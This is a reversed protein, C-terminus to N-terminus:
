EHNKLERMLREYLHMIMGATMGWIRREAYQFYYVPVSIAGLQRQEFQHNQSNLLFSLPVEFVSEVETSDINLRFAENVFGVVPIVSFGSFVVHTELYGVIEVHERSLGIEEETERLAAAKPELDNAEIRGGPFSIQGAHSRLGASRQTLLLSLGEPRDIIPMLVAAPTQEVPVLHAVRATDSLPVGGIRSSQSQNPPVAFLSRKILAKLAARDQGILAKSM